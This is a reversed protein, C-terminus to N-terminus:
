SIILKGLEKINITMIRKRKKKTTNLVGGEREREKERERRVSQAYTHTETHVQTHICIHIYTFIYM